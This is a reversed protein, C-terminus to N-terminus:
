LWCLYVPSPTSLRWHRHEGPQTCALLEQMQLWHPTQVQCQQRLQNKDTAHHRSCRQMEYMQLEFLSRSGPSAAESHSRRSFQPKPGVGASWVKETGATRLALPLFKNKTTQKKPPQIIQRWYAWDTVDMVMNKKKWIHKLFLFYEIVYSYHILAIWFLFRVVNRVCAVFSTSHIM